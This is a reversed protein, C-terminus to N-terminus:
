ILASIAQAGCITFIRDIGFIAAASLVLENKIGDPTPVVMIIEKVGAVKAPIANMLVSSPYAAKGGPVYIDVRDLSTVKQNLKTGNIEKYLFSKSGCNKLQREHYIFIRNAATLLANHQIKSLKQLAIQLRAKKIELDTINTVNM